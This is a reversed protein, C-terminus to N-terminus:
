DFGAGPVVSWRSGSTIQHGEPMTEPLGTLSGIIFLASDPGIVVPEARKVLTLDGETVIFPSEYLVENQGSPDLEKIIAVLQQVLDNAEVNEVEVQWRARCAHPSDPELHLGTATVRGAQGTKGLLYQFLQVTGFETAGRLQIEITQRNESIKDGIMTGAVSPGPGMAFFGALLCLPVIVNQRIIHTLLQQKLRKM